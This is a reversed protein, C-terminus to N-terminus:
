PLRSECQLPLTFFLCRYGLDDCATELLLPGSILDRDLQWLSSRNRDRFNMGIKENFHANQMASLFGGRKKQQASLGTQPGLSRM